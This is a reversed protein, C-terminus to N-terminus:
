QRGGIKGRLADPDVADRMASYLLDIEEIVDFCSWLFYDQLEDNLERFAEGGQGYISCLMARLQKIRTDIHEVVDSLDAGEAPAYIGSLPRRLAFSRGAPTNTNATM